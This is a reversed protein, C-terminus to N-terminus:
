PDAWPVLALAPGEPGRPDDGVARRRPADIRDLMAGLADVMWARYVSPHVILKLVAIGGQSRAFLGVGGVETTEFIRRDM